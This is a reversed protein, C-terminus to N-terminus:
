SFCLFSDILSLKLILLMNHWERKGLVDTIGFLVEKKLRLKPYERIAYKIQTWRDWKMSYDEYITFFDIECTPLCDCEKLRSVATLASRYTYLCKLESMPCIRENATFNFILNGSNKKIM